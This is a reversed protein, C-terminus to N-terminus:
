NWDSRMVCGIELNVTEISNEKKGFSFSSFFHHTKLINNLTNEEIYIYICGPAFTVYGIIDSGLLSIMLCSFMTSGSSFSELPAWRGELARWITPGSVFTGNKKWWFNTALLKKKIYPPILQCLYLKCQIHNENILQQILFICLTIEIIHFSYIWRIIVTLNLKTPVSTTPNSLINCIFSLKRYGAVVPLFMSSTTLTNSERCFAECYLTAVGALQFGPSGTTIDGLTLLSAALSM